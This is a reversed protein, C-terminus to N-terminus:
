DGGGVPPEFRDAPGTDMREAHDLLELQLKLSARLSEITAASPQNGGMALALARGLELGFYTAAKALRSWWHLFTVHELAM